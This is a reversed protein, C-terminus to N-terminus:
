SLAAVLVLHFLPEGTLPSLLQQPVLTTFIGFLLKHRHNTVVPFIFTALPTSVKFKSNLPGPFISDQSQQPGGSSSRTEAPLPHCRISVSGGM